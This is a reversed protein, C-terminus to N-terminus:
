VQIGWNRDKWGNESISKGCKDVQKLGHTLIKNNRSCQRKEWFPHVNSSCRNVWTNPAGFISWQRITNTIRWGFIRINKKYEGTKKIYSMLLCIWCPKDRIHWTHNRVFSRCVTCVIAPRRYDGYVMKNLLTMILLETKNYKPRCWVHMYNSVQFYFSNSLTNQKIIIIWPKNIM